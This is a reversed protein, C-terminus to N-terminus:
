DDRWGPPRDPDATPGFLGLNTKLAHLEFRLEENVKSCYLLQGETEKFKKNLMEEYETMSRIRRQLRLHDTAWGFSLAILLAAWLLTSTTYRFYPAM